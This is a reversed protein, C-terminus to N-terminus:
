QLRRMSYPTAYHQIIYEGFFVSPWAFYGRTYQSPDVMSFSEKMYGAAPLKDPPNIACAFHRQNDDPTSQASSVLEKITTDVETKNVLDTIGETILGLPWIYQHLNAYNAIHPSGIGAYHTKGPQSTASDFFFPDDASLIFKRTNTYVQTTTFEFSPDIYPIGLLSPLNADDMFLFSGRVTLKQNAMLPKLLKITRNELEFDVLPVLVKNITEGDYLIVELNKEPISFRFSRFPTFSLEFTSSEKGDVEFTNDEARGKGDLSFAYIRGYKYHNVVANKEIAVSISKSLRVAHAIVDKGSVTDIDLLELGSLMNLTKAMFINNPIEFYLPDKDDSPRAFTSTLGSCNKDMSCIEKTWLYFKSFKKFKKTETPDARDLSKLTFVQHRSREFLNVLVNVLKTLKKTFVFPIRETGEPLKDLIRKYECVLWLLFTPSESEYEYGAGPVGEPEIKSKPVFAHAYKLGLLMKVSLRIYGEILDELSMREAPTSFTPDDAIDELMVIYGHIQAASDRIWMERMTGLPQRKPDTTNNPGPCQWGGTIVYTESLYSENSPTYRFTNKIAIGFSLDFTRALTERNSKEKYIKKDQRIKRKMRRIYKEVLAQASDLSLTVKERPKATPKTTPKLTTRKPIETNDANKDEKPRDDIGDFNGQSLDELSVWHVSDNKEGLMAIVFLTIAGIVVVVLALKSSM